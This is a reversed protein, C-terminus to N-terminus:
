KASVEHKNLDALVTRLHYRNVNKIKIVSIHRDKTWRKVTDVSVMLKKALAEKTLLAPDDKQLDDVKNL